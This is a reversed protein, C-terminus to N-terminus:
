NICNPPCKLGTELTYSGSSVSLVERRQEVDIIESGNDNNKNSNVSLIERVVGTDYSTFVDTDKFDAREPYLLHRNNDLIILHKNILGFMIIKDTRELLGALVSSNISESYIVVGFLKDAEESTYIRGIQSTQSCAFLILALLFVVLIKFIKSM